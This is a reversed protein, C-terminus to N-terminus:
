SKRWRSDPGKAADSREFFGRDCRGFLIAGSGGGGAENAPGKVIMAFKLFLNRGELLAVVGSKKGVAVASRHAGNGGQHAFAVDDNEVLERVGAEDIRGFERPRDDRTKGCLLRERSSLMRFDVRCFDGAARMRTTVSDTKEISPSQQGSSCIMAQFFLM